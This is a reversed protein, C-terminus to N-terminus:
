HDLPVEATPISRATPLGLEDRNAPATNHRAADLAHSRPPAERGQLLLGLARLSQRIGARHGRLVLGWLLLGFASVSIGLVLGSIGAARWGSAIMAASAGALVVLTIPVTASEFQTTRQDLYVDDLQGVGPTHRQIM